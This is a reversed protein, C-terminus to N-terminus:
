PCIRLLRGSVQRGNRDTWEGSTPNRTDVAFLQGDLAELDAINVFDPVDLPIPIGALAVGADDLVVRLLQSPRAAAAEGPTAAVQADIEVVLDSGLIALEGPVLGPDFTVEERIPDGNLPVAVVVGREEAALYGGVFAVDGRVAVNREFFGPLDAPELVSTETGDSTILRTVDAGNEVLVVAFVDEAVGHLALASRGGLPVAVECAPATPFSCRVIGSVGDISGLGVVTGRGPELVLDTLGIPAVTFMPPDELVALARLAAEPPAFLPRRVNTFLFSQTTVPTVSRPFIPAGLEDTAAIVSAGFCGGLPQVRGARRARKRNKKRPVLSRRLTQSGLSPPAPVDLAASAGPAGLLLAALTAALLTRTRTQM